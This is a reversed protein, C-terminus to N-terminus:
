KVEKKAKKPKVAKIKVEGAAKDLQLEAKRRERLVKKKM